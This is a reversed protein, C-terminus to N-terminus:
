IELNDFIRIKVKQAELCEYPLEKGSHGVGLSLAKAKSFRLGWM